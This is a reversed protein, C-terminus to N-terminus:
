RNPNVEGTVRETFTKEGPALDQFPKEAEAASPPAEPTLIQSIESAKPLKAAVEPKLWGLNAAAYLALVLVVVMGLLQFM